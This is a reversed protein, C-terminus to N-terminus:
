SHCARAYHRRAKARNGCVSMTCWRRTGNNNDLFLWGCGECKKVQHLRESTLLDATSRLVPWLMRDLRIEQDEWVWQFEGSKSKIRQYLLAESLARNLMELDRVQPNKHDIYNSFIRYIMDQFQWASKLVDDAQKDQRKSERLVHEAETKTLIHLQLAWRILDIYTRLNRKPEMQSEWNATNAFDLCLEGGIVFFNSPHIAM